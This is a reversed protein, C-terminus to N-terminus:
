ELEKMAKEYEEKNPARGHWEVSNEMFSVGKGKVTNAIIVTPKGKTESAKDLADVIEKMEHGNIELVNWGFATWKAALPELPKNNETPATQQLRNRDVIATLNDLSYKASSMAAEWVSGEQLEGDGMLVYVRYDKKDLKGALAIGNAVALGQGLSGSSIEIGPIANTPHGQLLAGPKRLRLLEGAPFFGAEALTVYLAPCAHGKSLIFRDRDPWKPNKPDYRMKNFYLATIIDISSLSGGPHGSCACYLTEIIRRRLKRAMSKLDKESM